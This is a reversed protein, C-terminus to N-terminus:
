GVHPLLDDAVVSAREEPNPSPIAQEYRGSNLFAVISLRLHSRSGYEESVGSNNEIVRKSSPWLVV